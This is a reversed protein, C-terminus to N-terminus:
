LQAASRWRRFRKLGFFLSAATVLVFFARLPRRASLMEGTTYDFTYTEDSMAVLEFTHNNEDLKRRTEREWLFDVPSKLSGLTTDILDSIKYSRLM